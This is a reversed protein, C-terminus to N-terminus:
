KAAPQQLMRVVEAAAEKPLDHDWVLAEIPDVQRKVAKDYTAQFGPLRKELSKTVFEVAWGEGGTFAEQVSREFEKQAEAEPLAASTILMLEVARRAAIESVGYEKMLDKVLQAFPDFSM